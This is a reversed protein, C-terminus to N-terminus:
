AGGVEVTLAELDHDLRVLAADDGPEPGYLLSGVDGPPRGTRSAVTAILRDASAGPPVGLRAGLRQRAAARLQGAAEGRARNAHMLRAHGATTEGARVVVPLPEIVLRGLRRGRWLAIVVFGILLQVVVPLVWAPVLERLTAPREASLAPDTAVPRWWGLKPEAGLLNLALAANGDTDFDANTLPAASGLLVVDPRGARDGLARGPLAVLAAAEPRDFCAEAGGVWGRADYRWGPLSATQAKSAAPLNCGASLADDGVGDATAVGAALRDFLPDGPLAGILVLRSPRAALLEDVVQPTPLLTDTVLVTAGSARDLVEKTSRTDVVQVGLDTLVNAVARSGDPNVATPDLHGTRRPASVVLVILALVLLAAVALGRRTPRWGRVREWRSADFTSASGGDTTPRSGMRVVVGPGSM